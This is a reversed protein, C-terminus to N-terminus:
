KNKVQRLDEIAQLVQPKDMLRDRLVELGRLVMEDDYDGESIRRLDENRALPEVRQQPRQQQAEFRQQEEQLAESRQRYQQQQQYFQQQQREYQGVDKRYAAHEQQRQENLAKLLYREKESLDQEDRRDEQDTKQEEEKRQQVQILSILPEFDVSVM